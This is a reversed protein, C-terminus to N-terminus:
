QPVKINMGSFVMCVKQYLDDGIIAKLDPALTLEGDKYAGCKACELNEARLYAMTSNFFVLAIHRSTHKSLERVITSYSDANSLGKYILTTFKDVDEAYLSPFRERNHCRLECLKDNDIDSDEDDAMDDVCTELDETLYDKSQKGLFRASENHIVTTFYTHLNGKHANFRTCAYQLRAACEQYLDDRLTSDYSSIIVEILSGSKEIIQAMLAPDKTRQWSIVLATVEEAEFIM